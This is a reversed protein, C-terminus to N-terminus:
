RALGHGAAQVAIEGLGHRRRAMNCEEDGPQCARCVDPRNEYISCATSKGIEGQLAACRDGICRMGAGGSAVLAVPIRALAADDELSFRPWDPSYSCCAGCSQCPSAQWTAGPASEM